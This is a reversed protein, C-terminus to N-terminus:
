NGTKIILGDITDGTAHAWDVFASCQLGGAVATMALSLIRDLQTDLIVFTKEKGNDRLYKVTYDGTDTLGTELVTGGRWAYDASAEAAILGVVTILVFVTIIMKSAKM